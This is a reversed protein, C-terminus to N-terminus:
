PYYYRYPYYPRYPRYYYGYGDYYAPYAPYVVCGSLALLAAAAGLLRIALAANRSMAYEQGTGPERVSINDPLYHCGRPPASRLRRAGELAGAKGKFGRKHAV